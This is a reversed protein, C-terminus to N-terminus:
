LGLSGPNMLGRPDLVGKLTRLMEANRSDRGVMYPYSKGVQLHVAGCDAFAGRVAVRMEEVLARGEPNEPYIPLQDLFEQPLYRKHYLHRVDQWYFVPEYLFGTTGITTFMAAAHVKLAEMRAAYKEYIVGLKAHFADVRSFPLIGHLPVWREGAPGMIPYLQMFPAARVVTPITNPVEIGHPEVARRVAALLSRAHTADVGEVIFHASYESKDLFSKGAVAMRILKITGEIPNRSNKFVALAASASQKMNTRGLWAKQLRPNLGFNDAVIGERAAATMGRAMGEFTMFGFSASMAVPLVKILRLTIRAKVAMAGTDNTFLASLDPGYHRFFPTGNAAAAAGTKLITGDALVVDMGLVSDASPGHLGSGLSVAGQSMSGGITARLGSFPGWFPTRLGQKRLTEYLEAWTVGAEVTVYMDDAHVDIRNLRSTDILISQATTACYGDTYSAGGGRPVVAVGQSTATGVVRALEDVTGPQVVALPVAIQRYVDHAYFSRDAEDALVHEAGVAQVLREIVPHSVTDKPAM